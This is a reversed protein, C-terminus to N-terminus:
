GVPLRPFGDWTIVFGRGGTSDRSERDLWGRNTPDHIACNNQTELPNVAHNGVYGNDGVLGDIARALGRIAWVVSLWQHNVRNM